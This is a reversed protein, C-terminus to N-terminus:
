QPTACSAYVIKCHRSYKRCNGRARGRAQGIDSNWAWGLAGSSARALAACANKTWLAIRCDRAFRGCSSLAASEAEKQSADGPALVAGWAGRRAVAIAIFRDAATPLAAPGQSESTKDDQQTMCNQIFDAYESDPHHPGAWKEDCAIRGPGHDGATEENKEQESQQEFWAIGERAAAADACISCSSLYERLKTEDGRAEEYTAKEAQERQERELSGIERRADTVFACVSCGSVYSRLKGIDGRAARYTAEEAFPACSLSSDQETANHLQRKVGSVVTPDALVEDVNGFIKCERQPQAFMFAVCENADECSKECEAFSASALSKVGSHALIQEKSCEMVIPEDSNPPPIANAAIGSTSRPEFRFSGLTQKLFCQRKWKDYSFAQCKNPPQCAAMCAQMDVGQLTGNDPGTLDYNDYIKLPARDQASQDQALQGQALQMHTTNPHHQDTTGQKTDAVVAHAALLLLLVATLVLM